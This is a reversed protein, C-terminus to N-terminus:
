KAFPYEPYDDLLVFSLDSYETWTEQSHHQTPTSPPSSTTKITLSQQQKNNSLDVLIAENSKSKSMRLTPEVSSEKQKLKDIETEAQRLKTEMEQLRLRLAQLEESLANNQSEPLPFPSFKDADEKAVPFCFTRSKRYLHPVFM